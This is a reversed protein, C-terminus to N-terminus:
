QRLGLKSWVSKWSPILQLLLVQSLVLELFFLSISLTSTIVDTCHRRRQDACIFFSKHNFSLLGSHAYRSHGPLAADM